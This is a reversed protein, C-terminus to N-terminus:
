WSKEVDTPGGGAEVAKLGYIVVGPSHDAAHATAVASARTTGRAAAHAALAAKGCNGVSVEGRVRTRAAQMARCPRDDPSGVEFLPLLQEACDAAWDALLRHRATDLPGGRHVAVFRRDRM